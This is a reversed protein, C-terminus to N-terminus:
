RARVESATMDTSMIDFSGRPLGLVKEILEGVTLAAELAANEDALQPTHTHMYSSIGMFIVEVIGKIHELPAFAGQEIGEAVIEAIVPAFLRLRMEDFMSHFRGVLDQNSSSGFYSEVLYKPDAPAFFGRMLGLLRSLPDPSPGNMRSAMEVFAAWNRELIARMADDKSAFYYYFTGQAVGLSAVIDSVQVNEFGRERFLREAVDLIEQRREEPKKTVRAM